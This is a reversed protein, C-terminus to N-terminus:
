LESKPKPERNFFCSVSQVLDRLAYLSCGVSGFLIASQPWWLPISLGPTHQPRHLGWKLMRYTLFVFFTSVMLTVLAILMRHLARLRRSEIQQQMFDVTLHESKRSAILAGIMYLWMGFVMIIELLGVVSWGFVYRALVLFLMLGVVMLSSIIVSANLTWGVTKDLTSFFRGIM